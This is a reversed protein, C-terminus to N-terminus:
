KLSVRIQNKLRLFAVQHNTLELIQSPCPMSFDGGGFAGEELQDKLDVLPLTLSLLSFSSGNHVAQLHVASWIFLRNRSIKLLAHNSTIM